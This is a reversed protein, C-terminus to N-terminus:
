LILDSIVIAFMRIHKLFILNFDKIFLYDLTVALLLHSFLSSFNPCGRKLPEFCGQFAAPISRLLGLHVAARAFVFGM